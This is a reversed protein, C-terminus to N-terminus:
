IFLAFPVVYKEGNTKDNRQKEGLATLQKEDENKTRTQYQGHRILYVHRM